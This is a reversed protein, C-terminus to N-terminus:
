NLLLAFRYQSQPVGCVNYAYTYLIYYLTYKCILYILM